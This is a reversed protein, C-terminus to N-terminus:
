DDKPLAAMSLALGVAVASPRNLSLVFGLVVRTAIDFAITVWPRGM